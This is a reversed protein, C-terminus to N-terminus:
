GSLLSATEASRVAHLAHPTVPRKRRRYPVKDVAGHGPPLLSREGRVFNVSHGGKDEKLVADDLLAVDHVGLTQRLDGHRIAM